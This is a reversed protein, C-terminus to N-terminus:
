RLYYYWYGYDPIYTSESPEEESSDSDVVVEYENSVPNISCDYPTLDKNNHTNLTLLDYFTNLTAM